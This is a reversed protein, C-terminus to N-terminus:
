VQMDQNIKASSVIAGYDKDSLWGQEKLNLLGKGIEDRTSGMALVNNEAGLERLETEFMTNEQIQRQITEALSTIERFRPVLFSKIRARGLAGKLRTSIGITGVLSPPLTLYRKRTGSDYCVVYFPVYVLAKNLERSHPKMCLKEFQAINAERLKVTRGIQYSVLKTLKELKDMEQKIVLIKADRSAELEVLNRRAEKIGAELESRLRFAESARKKELHELAKENTKLQDQIAALEQKADKTQQKWRQKGATDDSEALAKTQL